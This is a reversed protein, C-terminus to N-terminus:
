ANSENWGRLLDSSSQTKKGGVGFIPTIGLERCVALEPTNEAKRDGGNIFFDPKIQRLGECVTGDKDWVNTVIDVWRLGSLVKAREDFSMFARGKKRELWEDSNLLVILKLYNYKEITDADFPSCNDDSFQWAIVKSVEKKADRLMDIHGGHVPDFGGSVCIVFENNM